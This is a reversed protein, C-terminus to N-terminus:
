VSLVIASAISRTQERTGHGGSNRDHATWLNGGIQQHLIMVHSIKDRAMGPFPAARPFCRRNSALNLEPIFKHLSAECGYFAHLCGSPGGNVIREESPISAMSQM